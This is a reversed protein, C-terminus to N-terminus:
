LIHSKINDDRINIDCLHKDKLSKKMKNIKDVQHKEM